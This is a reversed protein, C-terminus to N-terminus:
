STYGMNGGGLDIPTYTKPASSGFWSGITSLTNKNGLLSGVQNGIGLIQNGLPDGPVSKSAAGAAATVANANPATSAMGAFPANGAYLARQSALQSLTDGPTQKDIAMAQLNPTSGAALASYKAGLAQLNAQNVSGAQTMGQIVAQMQADRASEAQQRGLDVMSQGAGSNGRVAQTLLGSIIPREAENQGIQASRGLMQGLTTGSVPQFNALANRAAEAQPQTAAAQRMAMENALAQQTMDRTNRNVSADYMAEQAAQPKAGLTTKWSNTAPDYSYTNGLSDTYGATSRTLGISALQQGYQQQAMANALAARDIANKDQAQQQNAGGGLISGLIGSGAGILSGIAGITAAM